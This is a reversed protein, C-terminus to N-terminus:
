CQGCDGGCTPAPKVYRHYERNAANLAATVIALQAEVTERFDGGPEASEHVAILKGRKVKMESMLANANSALLDDIIMLDVGINEPRRRGM